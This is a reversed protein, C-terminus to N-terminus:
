LLFLRMRRLKWRMRLMWRGSTKNSALQKRYEGEKMTRGRKDLSLHATRKATIYASCPRRCISCGFCGEDYCAQLLGEYLFYFRLILFLFFFVPFCFPVPLKPNIKVLSCFPVLGLETKSQAEMKSQQYLVKTNSRHSWFYGPTSM